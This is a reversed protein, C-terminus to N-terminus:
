TFITMLRIIFIKKNDFLDTSFDIFGHQCIGLIDFKSDMKKTYNRDDPYVFALNRKNVTNEAVYFLVKELSGIQDM